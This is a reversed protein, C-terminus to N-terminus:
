VKTPRNQPQHQVVSFHQALTMAMVALTSLSMLPQMTWVLHRATTMVDGHHRELELGGDYFGDQLQTAVVERSISDNNDGRFNAPAVARRSMEHQTISSDGDFGGDVHLNALETSGSDGDGDGSNGDDEYELVDTADTADSVNGSFATEEEM